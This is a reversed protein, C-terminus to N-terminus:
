SPWNFDNTRPGIPLPHYLGWPRCSPRRNIPKADPPSQRALPVRISLPEKPRTISKRHWRGRRVPHIDSMQEGRCFVTSPSPPPRKWCLREFDTNTAAAAVQSILLIQQVAERFQEASPAFADIHGFCILCFSFTERFTAAQLLQLTYLLDVHGAEAAKTLSFRWLAWSM